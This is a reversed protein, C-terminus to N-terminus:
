KLLKITDRLQDLTKHNYIRNGIDLSKHGMLMDICKRNGGANDLNTEFTHRCEHPTKGETGLQQMLVKWDKYVTYESYPKGDERCVLYKSLNAGYLAKILPLVRKHMPVQRDKGAATKLGGILVEADFDVDTKKMTLLEMLRFGTYCYILAVDALKVGEQQLKWLTDIQDETFPSRKTDQVVENIQILQSYMKTIIDMEFAFRDLHGLLNQISAKTTRSKNCDDICKQMHYSKINRYKMGYLKQCYNYGAKMRKLNSEGLSPAKVELWKAYLDSFTLTERDVQWPSDNYQALLIMADQKTAGYGIPVQKHNGERDYVTVKVIWPRSRKGKLKTISGYGNPSRKM